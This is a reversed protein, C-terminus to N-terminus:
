VFPADDDEDDDDEDEDENMMKGDHKWMNGGNKRTKGHNKWLEKENKRCNRPSGLCLSSM